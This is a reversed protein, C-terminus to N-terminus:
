TTRALFLTGITTAAATGDLGTQQQEYSALIIEYIESGSITVTDGTRFFVQDPTTAVQLMAFDDPLYYPVPMVQNCIPIGKIPKYYNAASNVSKNNNKDFTDNRYYTIVEDSNHANYTYINSRFETSFNFRSAQSTTNRLYGYSAARAKSYQNAPEGSGYSYGDYQTNGYNM